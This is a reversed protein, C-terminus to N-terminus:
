AKAAGQKQLWEECIEEVLHGTKTKGQETAIEELKRWTKIKFFVVFPIKREELSM